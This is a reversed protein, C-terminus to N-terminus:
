AEAKLNTWIRSVTSQNVGLISAAKSQGITGTSKFCEHELVVSALNLLRPSFRSMVQNLRACVIEHREHDVVVASLASLTQMTQDPNLDELTLHNIKSNFRCIDKKAFRVLSAIFALLKSQNAFEM